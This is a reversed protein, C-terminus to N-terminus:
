HVNKQEWLQPNGDACYESGINIWVNICTTSGNSAVVFNEIEGPAVKAVANALRAAVKPDSNTIKVVFVETSNVQEASMASRIQSATIDLKSAEAVKELVTDSKIMTIYTNVLKQSTSLDTNSIYEGSQGDHVNNVYITVSATYMPTICNETFFMAIAGVTVASILVLWWKHLYEKLLKRLEFDLGDM